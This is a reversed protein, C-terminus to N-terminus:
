VDQTRDRVGAEYGAQWAASEKEGQHPCPTEMGELLDVAAVAYGCRWPTRLNLPVLQPVVVRDPRPYALRTRGEEWEFMRNRHPGLHRRRRICGRRAERNMWGGSQPPWDDCALGKYRSM